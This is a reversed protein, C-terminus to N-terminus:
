GRRRCAIRSKGYEGPPSEAHELIELAGFCRTLEGADLVFDSNFDPRTKLFDRNFTKVMLVGGPMLHDPLDAFLPRNLYHMVIILDFRGALPYHDLDAVVAGLDVHRRRALAVALRMGELSGDIATVSFGREALWVANQGSGSAIDLAEGGRPLLACHALWPDPQPAEGVERGRFKRNWREIDDRM